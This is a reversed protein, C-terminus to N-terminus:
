RGGRIFDCTSEPWEKQEDPGTSVILTGEDIGTIKGRKGSNHEVIDNVQFEDHSQEREEPESDSVVGEPEPSEVYETERNKEVEPQSDETEEKEVEYDIETEEINNDEDRKIYEVALDLEEIAYESLEPSLAVEYGNSLFHNIIYDICDTNVAWVKEDGDWRWETKDRDMSKLDEKATFVSKIAVRKGGERFNRLWFRNESAMLAYETTEHAGNKDIVIPPADVKINIKPSSEKESDVIKNLTEDPSESPAENPLYLMVGDSEERTEIKGEEALQNIAEKPEKDFYKRFAPNFGSYKSHIGKQPLERLEKIARKTFEAESLSANDEVM